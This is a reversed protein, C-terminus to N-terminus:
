PTSSLGSERKNLLLVTWQRRRQIKEQLFCQDAANQAFLIWKSAQAAAGVAGAAVLTTTKMDHYNEKKGSFNGIHLLRQREGVREACALLALLLVFVSIVGLGDHFLEGPGTCFIRM